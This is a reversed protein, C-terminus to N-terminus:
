RRGVFFNLSYGCCYVVAAYVLVYVLPTTLVGKM